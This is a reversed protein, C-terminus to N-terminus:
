LPAVGPRHLDNQLQPDEVGSGVDVCPGDCATTQPFGNPASAAPVHLGWCVLTEGAQTLATPLQGASWPGM